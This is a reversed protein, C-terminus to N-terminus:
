RRFPNPRYLIQALSQSASRRQADDEYATLEGKGAAVCGRARVGATRAIEGGGKTLLELLAPVAGAEVVAQVASAM